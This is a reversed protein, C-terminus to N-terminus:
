EFYHTKIKANQETRDPLVTQSFDEPKLNEFFFDGFISWKQM